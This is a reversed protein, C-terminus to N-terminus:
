WVIIKCKYTEGGYTAVIVCNGSRVAKVTGDSVTCSSGGEVTWTVGEIHTGNSDVLALSFSNGVYLSVEEASPGILNKLKFPAKYKDSPAESDAPVTPDTVEADPDEGEVAAETPEEAFECRVVCSIIEGNYDGYVTTIGSGVATVIGNTVSAVTPDDSSWIIDDMPIEGSYVVWTDGANEFTIEQRNLEFVIQPVGVTVKCQASVIGCTVTITAEGKYVATVRGDSEVMVTANDSSEFILEDTTDFPEPVATLYTYDGANELSLEYADLVLDQCPIDGITEVVPETPEETVIPDTVEPKSAPAPIFFKILIYAVVAIIALLLVFITIVLGMNGSSKKKKKKPPTSAAPAAPAAKSTKASNSYAGGQSSMTRKRVNSKSFRGGKVHQYSREPMAEPSNSPVGQADAPRVCGCIPCQASVEPYATGCVECIIKSM